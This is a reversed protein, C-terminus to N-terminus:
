KGTHGYGGEGRKTTPLELVTEWEIKEVKCLVAQAIRDGDKIYFPKNCGRLISVVKGLFDTWDITKDIGGFNNIKGIKPNSFYLTGKTEAGSVNKRRAIGPNGM